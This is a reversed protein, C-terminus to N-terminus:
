EPPTVESPWATIKTGDAVIGRAIVKHSGDRALIGTLSVNMGVSLTNRNWGLALLMNPSGLECAWNLITGTRPDKVDLYFFTHPNGWAVKTVTGTLVTKQKSDFEASISHHASAASSLTMSSVVAILLAYIRTTM